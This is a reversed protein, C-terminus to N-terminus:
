LSQLLGLQAIVRLIFIAFGIMLTVSVQVILHMEFLGIRLTFDTVEQLALIQLLRILEVLHPISLLFQLIPPLM